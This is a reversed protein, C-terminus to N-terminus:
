GRTGDPRARESLELGDNSSEEVVGLRQRDGRWRGVGEALIDAIARLREAPELDDRVAVDDHDMTM